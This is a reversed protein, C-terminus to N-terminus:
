RPGQVKSMTTVYRMDGWVCITCQFAYRVRLIACAHCQALMRVNLCAGGMAIVLMGSMHCFHLPREHLPWEHLPRDHLLWASAVRPHLLSHAM